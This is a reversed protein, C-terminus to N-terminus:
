CCGCGCCIVVVVVVVVVVRLFGFVCFLCVVFVDWVCSIIVFCGLCFCVGVVLVRWSPAKQFSKLVYFCIFVM